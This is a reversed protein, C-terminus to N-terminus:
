ETHVQGICQKQVKEAEKRHEQIRKRVTEEVELALIAEAQELAAGCNGTAAYAAMLKKRCEAENYGNNLAGNRISELLIEHIRIAEEWRGIQQYCAGAGWLYFRSEPFRSLGELFAELAATYDKRDYEIWGLSSLGVWKSFAGKEISQRILAIGLKREDRIFPLWRLLKYFKGAWYKYNGIMLCADWLTSDQRVAEELLGVGKQANRFGPIFSGSQALFLGKYGYANGLYFRLWADPATQSLCAEGLRIARDVTELFESKWRDTEYDMMASQLTAARYFAGVPHDPIEAEIAEFLVLASDFESRITMEIGKRILADTVAGFPRQAPLATYSFLLLLCLRRVM